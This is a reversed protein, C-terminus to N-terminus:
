ARIEKAMSHILGRVSVQMHEPLLQYDSMLEYDSRRGRDPAGEEIGEFFDQVRCKLVRAFDVLRAGSAQNDGLEYKSVQQSVIPPLCAEGFAKQSFGALTRMRGLNAGITVDVPNRM